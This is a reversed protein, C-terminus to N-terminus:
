LKGQASPAGATAVLGAVLLLWGTLVASRVGAGM